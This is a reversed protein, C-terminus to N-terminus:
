SPPLMKDWELRKEALPDIAGTSEQLLLNGSQDDVLEADTPELAGPITALADLAVMNEDQDMPPSSHWSTSETRTLAQRM